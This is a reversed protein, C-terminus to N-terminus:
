YKKLFGKSKAVEETVFCLSPVVKDYSKHNQGYFYGITKDYKAKIMHTEPCIPQEGAKVFHVFDVEKTSIPSTIKSAQEFDSENKTQIKEQLSIRENEFKSEGIKFGFYFGAGFLLCLISFYGLYTFFQKTM